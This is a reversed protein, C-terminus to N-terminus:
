KATTSAAKISSEYINRTNKIAPVGLNQPSFVHINEATIPPKYKFLKCLKRGIYYHKFIALTVNKLFHM